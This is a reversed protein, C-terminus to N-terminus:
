AGAGACPRPEVRSDDMPRRALRRGAVLTVIWSFFLEDQFTQDRGGRGGLWIRKFAANVALSTVGRSRDFFGPLVFFFSVRDLGLRGPRLGQREGM